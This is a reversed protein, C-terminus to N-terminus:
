QSSPNRFCWLFLCLRLIIQKMRGLNLITEKKNDDDGRLLYRVKEAPAPPEQIMESLSVDRLYTSNDERVETDNGEESNDDEEILLERAEETPYTVQLLVPNTIQNNVSTIAHLLDESIRDKNLEPNLNGISFYQLIKISKWTRNSVWRVVGQYAKM